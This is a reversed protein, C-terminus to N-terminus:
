ILMLSKRKKAWQLKMLLHHVGCRANVHYTSLDIELKWSQSEIKRAVGPTSLQATIENESGKRTENPAESKCVVQLCKSGVHEQSDNHLLDASQWECFKKQQQLFYNQFQLEPMIETILADCILNTTKSIIWLSWRWTILIKSSVPISSLNSKM